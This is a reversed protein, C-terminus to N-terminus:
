STQQGARSASGFCPLLFLDDTAASAQSCTRVLSVKWDLAARQGEVHVVAHESARSSQSSNEGGEFRYNRVDKRGFLSVPYEEVPEGDFIVPHRTPRARRACLLSARGSTDSQVVSPH